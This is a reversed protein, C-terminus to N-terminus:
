RSRARGHPRATQPPHPAPQPQPSVTDHFIRISPQIHTAISITQASTHDHIVNMALAM